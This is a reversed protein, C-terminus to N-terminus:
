TTKIIGDYTKKLIDTKFVDRITDIATDINEVEIEADGSNYNLCVRANKTMIFEKQVTKTTHEDFISVWRFTNDSFLAKFIWAIPIEMCKKSSIYNDKFEDFFGGLDTQMKSINLVCKVEVNEIDYNMYRLKVKKPKVVLNRENVDLLHIISEFLEDVVAQDLEIIQRQFKEGTFNPLYQKTFFTVEEEYCDQPINFKKCKNANIGDNIKNQSFGLFGLDTNFIADTNQEAVTNQRHAEVQRYIIDFVVLYSIIDLYTLKKSLIMEDIMYKIFIELCEDIIPRLNRIDEEFNSERHFQIYDKMIDQFKVIPIKNEENNEELINDKKTPSSM